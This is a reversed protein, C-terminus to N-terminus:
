LSYRFETRIYKGNGPNFYDRKTRKILGPVNGDIRIFGFSEIIFEIDDSTLLRIEKKKEFPAPRKRMGGGTVALILSEYDRICFAIPELKLLSYTKDDNLTKVRERLNLTHGIKYIDGYESKAIYTYKNYSINTDRYILGTVHDYRFPCEKERTDMVRLVDQIGEKLLTDGSQSLLANISEPIM